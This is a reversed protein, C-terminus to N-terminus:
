AESQSPTVTIGYKVIRHANLASEKGIELLATQATETIHRQRESANSIRRFALCGKVLVSQDTGKTEKFLAIFDNVSLKSLAEEGEPSFHNKYLMSAAEMPTPLAKQVEAAKKEFAKLVDPDNVLSGFLEGSLDFSYDDDRSEMFSSLLKQGLDDFGIDKLVKVAASLNSPSLYKINEVLGGFLSKAVEEANSDFSGHFPVWAATMAAQARAFQVDKLYKNAGSLINEDNFFGNKVDTALIEDFEDFHSFGYRDLISDWRLEDVSHQKNENLLVSLRDKAIYELSPAGEGKPTIIAWVIVVLSRVVSKAVDPDVDKLLEMLSRAHRGIKQMVRINTIELQACAERLDRSLTDNNPFAIAASETPTPDFQFSSNIVKESYRKFETLESEDLTDENLILVVKCKRVDRLQAITGMIENVSVNTGKREFDDICVITNAVLNSLLARAVGGLGAIHPITAHEAVFGLSEKLKKSIDAIKGGGLVNPLQRDGDIVSFDTTNAFVSQMIDSSNNIGFLSVYAYKTIIKASVAQKVADDWAHTKGTGWKGEICLVEPEPDALFKQM